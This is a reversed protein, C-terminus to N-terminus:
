TGAIRASWAASSPRRRTTASPRPEVIQLEPQASEEADLEPLLNELLALQAFRAALAPDARLAEDLRATEEPPLTGDLYGLIRDDHGTSM